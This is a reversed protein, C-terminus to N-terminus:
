LNAIGPDCAPMDHFVTHQRLDIASFDQAAGAFPLFSNGCM